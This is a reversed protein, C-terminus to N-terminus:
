ICNAFPFFQQQLLLYNSDGFISETATHKCRIIFTDVSMGKEKREERAGERDRVWENRRRQRDRESM